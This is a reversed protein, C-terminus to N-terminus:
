KMYMHYNINATRQVSVTKTATCFYVWSTKMINIGSQVCQTFFWGTYPQSFQVTYVSHTYVLYSQLEV